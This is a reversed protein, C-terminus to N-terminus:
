GPLPRAGRAELLMTMQSIEQGQDTMMEYATRKVTPSVEDNNHAAKAMQLGGQHHRIMLQLFWVEAARGTLDALRSIDATSAMGTMAPGQDAAASPVTTRTVTGHHGHGSGPDDDTVSMWSMPDTATLPKGFWTLWGRLTANEATQATIIRTALRTIEPGVGPLGAVTGALLIAQDHHVSMDQAFGVDVASMTPARDNDRSQWAAGVVAGVALLLVAIASAGVALVATRPVAPRERGM